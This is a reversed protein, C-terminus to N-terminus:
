QANRMAREAADWVRQARAPDGVPRRYLMLDKMAKVLEDRQKEAKRRRRYEKTLDSEAQKAKREAARVKAELDAM